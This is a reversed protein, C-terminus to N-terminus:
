SRAFDAFAALWADLMDASQGTIDGNDDFAGMAKSVRLHDPFLQVKFQRLVVLAGSQALTTGLGGPTAGALAVPRDKFTPYMEAPPRSLWDLTNKLVGAMGANYEPTIVILGDAAKIRERLESVAAPVGEADELDGDYLPIGHCTAVEVEVGEPARKTMAHALLTNFSAKRLSGSLAILKM